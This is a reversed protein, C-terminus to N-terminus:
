GQCCHRAPTFGELDNFLIKEPETRIKFGGFGGLVPGRLGQGSSLGKVGRRVSVVEVMVSGRGGKVKKLREKLPIATKGPNLVTVDEKALGTM